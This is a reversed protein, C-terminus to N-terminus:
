KPYKKKIVKLLNEESYRDKLRKPMNSLLTNIQSYSMKYKKRFQSSFKYAAKNIAPLLNKVSYGWLNDILYKEIIECSDLVYNFNYKSKTNKSSNLYSILLETQINGAGQGMGMITSDIILSRSTKQNIFAQVNSFALNMNNHSHFGIRIQKSLKHDFKKYLNFIDTPTMYGYSDVIYLAYAKFNNSRNILLEIQKDTYRMTVMPQVFVKYGKDSLMHCFDLSKEIESYRIIVRVGQCLSNDCEPIEHHLTDPGRYLAVYMQGSNKQLPIFKSVQQINQYISFCTKDKRSKEISGIEIIDIKSNKIVNIFNTTIKKNFVRCREGNLSCDELALGGDRLTCDLVSLKKKM